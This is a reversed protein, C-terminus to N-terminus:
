AGHGNQPLPSVIAVPSVHRQIERGVQGMIPIVYRRGNAMTLLLTKAGGGMDKSDVDVIQELWISEVVPPKGVAAM